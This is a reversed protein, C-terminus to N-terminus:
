GDRRAERAAERPDAIELGPVLDERHRTLHGGHSPEGRHALVLDPLDGDLVTPGGPGGAVVEPRDDRRTLREGEPDVDRVDLRHGRRHTRVLVPGPDPNAVGEPDVLVGEAVGQPGGQRG